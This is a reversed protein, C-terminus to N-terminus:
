GPKHAVVVLSDVRVPQGNIEQDPEQEEETRISGFGAATLLHTVDGADYLRFGYSVFPYHQM